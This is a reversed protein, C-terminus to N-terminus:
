GRDPLVALVDLGAYGQVDAASKITNDFKDWAFGAGLAAMLGGLVAFMLIRGKRPAIPDMATEAPEIITLRLLKSQELANSLRSQEATRVYSLYAEEDLRVQRELRALDFSQAELRVAQRRYDDRERTLADERGRIAALAARAAVLNTEQNDGAVGVSDYAAIAGRLRQIQEDIDRVRESDPRYRGLLEVRRAELALLEPTAVRGRGPTAGGGAQRELYGVRREQEERNIKTRALEASFENLQRAIEDQQGAQAGIQKRLAQLEAESAALKEQLIRSQETFFDEAQMIRQLSAHREVYAQTLQAVFERAWRPDHGEYAVEIVNSNGLREARLHEMVQRAREFFPDQDEVNAVGHLRRYGARVVGYARAYLSPSPAAQPEEGAAMHKLVQQVLERGRLIQLQSDIDAESVLSTRMLETTRDPSSSLQARDSTFLIKAAARYQPPTLFIQALGAFAVVAWVVGVIRRQRAFVLLLEQVLQRPTTTGTEESDL